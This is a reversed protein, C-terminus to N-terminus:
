AVPTWRSRCTSVCEKGVRREESRLGDVQLLENRKLDAFGQTLGICRYGYGELVDFLVGFRPAGKYLPTLSMELLIAPIDALTQQAGKLVELEFGQADM